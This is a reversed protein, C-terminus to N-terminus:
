ATGSPGPATRGPVAAVRASVASMSRAIDDALSIVRSSRIGAAPEFEYLTVVPGPRVQSIQGRVGFDALVNELMRANQELAEDSERSVSQAGKQKELLNLPPLQYESNSELKLSPQAERAERKGPAKRPEIRTM